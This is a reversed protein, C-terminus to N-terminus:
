RCKAAAREILAGLVAPQDFLVRHGAAEVSHVLLEPVGHKLEETLRSFKTDRDGAVIEIRRGERDILSRFDKQLGLSWRRLCAAARRRADRSERRDPELEGGLFVPQLNWSKMVASWDDKEFRKAWDEDKQLREKRAAEDAEPLGPHASVVMLRAFRSPNREFAHLALRGGQSYGTLLIPGHIDQGDLWNHFADGWTKLDAAFPSLQPHGACDPVVWKLHRASKRARDWDSPEGLFGHLAVVTVDM